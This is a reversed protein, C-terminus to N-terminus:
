PVIEGMWVYLRRGDVRLTLVDEVSVPRVHASPNRVAGLRTLLEGIAEKRGCAAEFADRWNDGQTIISRYEGFDAYEILSAEPRGAVRDAERAEEWKERVKQNVRQRVWKPGVAATMKADIFARLKRELQRMGHAVFEDLEDQEPAPAAAIMGFPQFIAGALAIPLSALRVDFGHALRLGAALLPDANVEDEDEERRYDGLRSRVLRVARPAGPATRGVLRTLGSLMAYGGIALEPQDDAVWPVEITAIEDATRAVWTRGARPNGAAAALDVAAIEQRTPLRLPPVIEPFSAAFQARTPLAGTAEAILRSVGDIQENFRQSVEKTSDSIREVVSTLARAQALATVVHDPMMSRAAAVRELIKQGPMFAALRNAGDIASITTLHQQAAAFGGTAVFRDFSEQKRGMGEFLTPQHKLLDQIKRQARLADEIVRPQATFGFMAERARREENLRSLIDAGPSAARIAGATAALALPNGKLPDFPDNAM